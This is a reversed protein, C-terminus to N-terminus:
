TVRPQSFRTPRIFGSDVQANCECLAVRNKGKISEVYDKDRYGAIRTPKGDPRVIHYHPYGRTKM